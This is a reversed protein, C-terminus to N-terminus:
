SNVPEAGPLEVVRVNEGAIAGILLLCPAEVTCPEGAIEAPNAMDFAASGDDGAIQIQLQLADCREGLLRELDDFAIATGLENRASNACPRTSILRGPEWGPSVMMLSGDDSQRVTDRNETDVRATAVLPFCGMPTFTIVVGVLVAAGGGVAHWRARGRIGRVLVVVGFVALVAGLVLRVSLLDCPVNFALTTM